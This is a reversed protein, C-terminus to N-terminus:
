RLAFEEGLLERLKRLARGQRAKVADVTVGMAAATEALSLGHLFRLTVVEGDARPLQAVAKALAVQEAHGELGADPTDFAELAVVPPARFLRRRHETVVHRAIGFLWARPPLGRDELHEASRWAQEFIVSALDEADEASPVRSYAYRYIAPMEQEFLMRWAGPERRRLREILGASASGDPAADDAEARRPASALALGLGGWRLALATM